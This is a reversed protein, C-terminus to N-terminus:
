TAAMQNASQNRTMFAYLGIALVIVLAIVVAGINVLNVNQTAAIDAFLPTDFPRVYIGVLAWVIVLAYAIDGRLRLMLLGLVAAIVMMIVTWIDASIGFLATENGGVYLAAAINAVTAVSVWGMYISFPIHVAWRRAMSVATRGIGLRQYIVILSVLILLIAITSIATQDNLFLYLWSINGICSLVFWWGIKGVVEDGHQGRYQYILFAALGLYIVGWISFVYGAPLFFVPRSEGLEAVTYQFIDIGFQSATQSLFNMALTLIYAIINATKLVNLSRM